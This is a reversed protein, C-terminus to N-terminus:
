DPLIGAQALIKKLSDEQKENIPRLPSRPLGGHYGVWDLAKKLAPVGFQATVATNARILRLQLERAKEHLSDRGYQYLRCCLEPAINALAMIGGCAGLVMAPYLFGASGALFHFDPPAHMVVDGLKAMNGSSDKIGIINPHQALEIITQADLDIGTNAPMNYLLVPLPSREALETYHLVLSRGDMKSRYYIPTLIMAADAGCKAAQETLELTSKTSDCWTGAIFLKDRPIAKRATKFVEIKEQENLYTFEGNSGLVLLGNLPTNCWREINGSLKDYAVEGKDDFPTPIPPYVGTVSIKRM